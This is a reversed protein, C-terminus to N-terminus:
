RTATLADLRRQMALRLDYRPKGFGANRAAIFNRQAVRLAAASRRHSAKMLRAYANAIQHDLAGLQPDACIAKEVALKAAECNFSPDSDPASLPAPAKDGVSAIEAIMARRGEAANENGPDLRLAAEYDALAKARQGMKKFLVARNNYALAFKPDIRLAANYDELATGLEGKFQYADGRNTLFNARQEIRIAQDYDAVAKDYDHMAAYTLGRNDFYEPV